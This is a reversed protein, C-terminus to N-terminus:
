PAALCYLLEGGRVFTRRGSFTPTGGSGGPLSGAGIALGQDGPELVITEGADNGVFLNKGALCLSPYVSAGGAGAAATFEIKKNLIVKGTSADIVHYKGAKDVTYLRGRHVLPSAFFEGTLEGSWLEKCEIREEAKEPLQVASMGGDIFFVARDQVVPSTYMCNGLDAALTKGDAVRVIQGKPTVVVDVDGIRAAAPTGYSARADDNRWLVKGSAAELCVLPGFHVLLRDGVLVPSATRGYSTTQRLDYWIMWRSKGELDHCAVLGTGLFVWVCRGDSVPTPNADGYQSSHTAGKEAAEASVAALEHTKRWLERGTEVDLCVLVDPESTILLRRGAVIPSSHGTGVESKWLVNEGVKWRTVPNASPFQGSGDGRWGVPRGPTPGPDAADAGAAGAVGCAVLLVFPPQFVTRM